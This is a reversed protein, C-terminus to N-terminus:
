GGRLNSCEGHSGHTVLFANALNVLIIVIVNKDENVAHFYRLAAQRVGCMGHSPDHKFRTPDYAVNIVSVCDLDPEFARPNVLM